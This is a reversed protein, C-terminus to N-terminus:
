VRKLGRRDTELKRFNETAEDMAADIIVANEVAEREIPDSPPLTGAYLRTMARHLRGYLDPPQM